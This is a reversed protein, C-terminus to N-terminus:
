MIGLGNQVGALWEGRFCSGDPWVMEGYGHKRDELYGGEYKAGIERWTFTGQGNRSDDRYDGEYTYKDGQRWLGKGTKKQDLFAGVYMDGNAWKYTGEGYANGYKYQGIYMDYQQTTSTSDSSVFIDCGNGHRLNFRWEGEYKDGNSWVHVGFGHAM